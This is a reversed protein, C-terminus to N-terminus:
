NSFTLDGKPTGPPFAADLAGGDKQLATLETLDGYDVISPKEFTLEKNEM